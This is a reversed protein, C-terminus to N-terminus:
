QNCNCRQVTKSIIRSVTLTNCRKSYSIYNNNRGHMTNHLQHRSPSQCQGTRRLKLICFHWARMWSSCQSSGTAHQKFGAFSRVPLGASCMTDSQFTTSASLLVQDFMMAVDDRIVQEGDTEDVRAVHVGQECRNEFNTMQSFTSCSVREVHFWLFIARQEECGLIDTENRSVDCSLKLQTDVHVHACSMRHCVFQSWQKKARFRLIRM